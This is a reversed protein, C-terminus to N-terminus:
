DGKSGEGCSSNCPIYGNGQLIVYLAAKHSLVHSRHDPSGTKMISARSVHQVRM